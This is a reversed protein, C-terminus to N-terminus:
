SNTLISFQLLAPSIFLTHSRGTLQAGHVEGSLAAYNEKASGNARSQQGKLAVKRHQYQIQNENALPTPLIRVVFVHMQLRHQWVLLIQLYFKAVGKAFRAHRKRCAGARLWSSGAALLM